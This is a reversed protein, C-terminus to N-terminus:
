ATACGLSQVWRFLVRALASERGQFGHDAGRVVRAHFRAGRYCQKLRSIMQATPVTQYEDHEAAICLVPCQIRAFWSGPGGTFDFIRAEVARRDAISLFRRASFPPVVPAGLPEDGRGSKIRTRAIKLWRRYARGLDRRVIALDDGIALLVVGCVAPDQRVAVYYTAKQCGTSHGVLIVRRYGVTKAFRVAAALDSLCDHFRENNTGAEAGRNNFSLVAIRRRAFTRMLEKKWRAHYFNSHMGHVIIVVPRRRDGPVFFGDLTMGKKMGVPIEILYGGISARYGEMRM